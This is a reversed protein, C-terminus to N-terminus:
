EDDRDHEETFKGASKMCNYYVEDGFADEITEINSAFKEELSLTTLILRWHHAVIIFPPPISPRSLYECILSYRQFKWIRDTDNQLRDFINCSYSQSIICWFGFYICIVFGYLIKLDYVMEGIMVLKPGLRKIAVFIDLSRIFWIIIDIPWVICAAYFCETLPICRLIFSVCFLIIALVDLKNWFVEFYQVIANCTTQAELSFLHRMAQYLLTTIWVLLIYGTISPQNRRQLEYPITTNTKSETNKMSPSKDDDNEQKESDITPRCVDM